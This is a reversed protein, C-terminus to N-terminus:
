WTLKKLKILSLLRTLETEPLIKTWSHFHKVSSPYFMKLRFDHFTPGFHFSIPVSHQHRRNKWITIWIKVKKRVKEEMYRIRPRLLTTYKVDYVLNSKITVVWCVMMYKKNNDITFFISGWHKFINTARYFSLFTLSYNLVKILKTNWNWNWNRFLNFM